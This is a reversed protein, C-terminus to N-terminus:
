SGLGLMSSVERKGSRKLYEVHYRLTGDTLEFVKKLENFAVGPHEVIYNYIMRRTDHQLVLEDNAM